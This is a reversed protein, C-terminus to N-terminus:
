YLRMFKFCSWFFSYISVATSVVLQLGLPCAVFRLVGTLLVQLEYCAHKSGDMTLKNQALINRFWSLWGFNGDWKVAAWIESSNCDGACYFGICLMYINFWTKWDNFAFQSCNVCAPLLDCVCSSRGKFLASVLIVRKYLSDYAATTMANSCLGM